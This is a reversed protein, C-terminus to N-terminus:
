HIVISLDEDHNTYYITWRFSARRIVLGSDNASKASSAGLIQSSAREVVWGGVEGKEHDIHEGPWVTKRWALGCITICYFHAGM